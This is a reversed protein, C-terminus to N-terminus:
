GSCRYSNRKRASLSHRLFFRVMERSANPGTPDTFRGKSSGGSWAHGSASVTWHEVLPPGTGLRHVIRRYARGNPIRGASETSRLSSPYAERARIAVLRGNRPNVVADRSGHFVITPSPNDPRLGPDGRKMALLASSKDHAAGAPLGSHVGVAAFIEPYARAVVLAMSAGASLGAIYTRAPDAGHAEVVHHTLSALMAPEGSRGQSDRAFWNWCRNPHAERTQAPYVVIFGKESALLNMATGRAFDDPTQGCGHLMVLLPPPLSSDAVSDPRFIKYRLTGSESNHIGSSFSFAPAKVQTGSGREARTQASSAATKRKKGPSVPKPAFASLAATTFSAIGIALKAGTKTASRAARVRASRPRRRRRISTKM